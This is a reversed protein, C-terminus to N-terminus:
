GLHCLTEEENILTALKLDVQYTERCERCWVNVWSHREAWISFQNSILFKKLHELHICIM